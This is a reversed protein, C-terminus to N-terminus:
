RCVRTAARWSRTWHAAHRHGKSDRYAKHWTRSWHGPRAVCTRHHPSTRTSVTPSAPAASAATASTFAIGGALVSSAAGVALLRVLRNTRMM